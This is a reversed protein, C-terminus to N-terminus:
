LFRYLSYYLESVASSLIRRRVNQFLRSRDLRKTYPGIQSAAGLVPDEDVVAPQLVGIYPRSRGGRGGLYHDIPLHIKRSGHMLLREAYNRSVSYGWTNFIVGVPRHVAFGDIVTRKRQSVNRSSTGLYVLDFRADRRASSDLARVAAAFDPALRLDDEIVTCFEQDSRLLAQWASLHSLWCGIEANSLSKRDFHMGPFRSGIQADVEGARVCRLDVGFRDFALGSRELQQAMATRREVASDLNILVLMPTRLKAM